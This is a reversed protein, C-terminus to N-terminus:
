KLIPYLYLWLMTGYYMNM